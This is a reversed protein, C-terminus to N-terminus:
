REMFAIFIGVWTASFLILGIGKTVSQGVKYYFKQEKTMQKLEKWVVKNMELNIKRKQFDINLTKSKAKRKIPYIQIIEQQALEIQNQIFEQIDEKRYRYDKSGIRFCKLGQKRFKTMTRSDKIQFYQMAQETTLLNQEM